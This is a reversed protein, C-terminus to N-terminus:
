GHSFVPKELYIGVKEFAQGQSKNITMSYALRVPFQQRRLVFPLISKSPSMIFKPIFEINGSHAGTLMQCKLFHMSMGLDKLRSDNCLGHDTNLNRLLMVVCGEKLLLEHLGSPTQANLFEGPYNVVEGNVDTATDHSYFIQEAQPQQQLVAMNIRLSTAKNTPTVIIRKTFEEAPLDSPFIATVLHCATM